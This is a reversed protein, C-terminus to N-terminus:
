GEFDLKFSMEEMLVERIVNTPPELIPFSMLHFHIHLIHSHQSYQLPNTPLLVPIYIILLHHYVEFAAWSRQM